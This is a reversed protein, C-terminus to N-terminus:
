AHLVIERAEDRAQQLIREAETAVDALRRKDARAKWSYGTAIGIALAVLFVVFLTILVTLGHM